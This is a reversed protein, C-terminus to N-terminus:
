RIETKKNASYVPDFDTHMEIEFKKNNDDIVSLTFEIDSDETIQHHDRAFTKAADLVSDAEVEAFEDEDWDSYGVKM